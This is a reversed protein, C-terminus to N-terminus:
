VFFLAGNGEVFGAVGHDAPQNFEGRRQHLDANNWTPLRKTCSPVQRFLALDGGRLLHKILHTRCQTPARCFIQDEVFNRRARQTVEFLHGLLSVSHYRNVAQVFANAVAAVVIAPAILHEGLRIGFLGRADDILLYAFDDVTGVM